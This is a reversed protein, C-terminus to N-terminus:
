MQPQIAIFFNNHFDFIHADLYLHQGRAYMWILFNARAYDLMCVGSYGPRVPAGNGEDWPYAAILFNDGM